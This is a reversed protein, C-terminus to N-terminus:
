AAIRELENLVDAYVAALSTAMAEVTYTSRVLNAARRARAEDSRMAFARRLAARVSGISSTDALSGTLGETVFTSPGGSIPAVVAIGTAMAELLAVGFEEKQSTCAYIGDPPILDTLGERAIRMLTAVEHNPRHGLLLFGERAHPMREFVEDLGALVAQEEATPRELNGGVIVLNLARHLNDDGAWAELLLPMGKVRHLRGVSVVLPLGRRHWPLAAIAELMDGAVTPLAAGHRAEGLERAARDVAAMSIGEPVTRVRQPELEAFPKGFLNGLTARADPRPLVVVTEAQQLLTEVLQARQLYHNRLEEQPFTERTLAGSCEAAAILAHPDPAATFVVPIGLRRCVRAAAFAGADAFRLHAVDIGGLEAVTAELARELELRHEWLDPAAVYGAPGFPMREISVGDAQIETLSAHRWGTEPEALARAITTVRGVVPETKLARGLHVLLTSIGGDDGAGAFSLDADLRGQVFIQAVHLGAESTAPRTRGRVVAVLLRDFPEESGIVSTALRAAAEGAVATRLALLARACAFRVEANGHRAARRLDDLIAPDPAAAFARVAAARVIDSEESSRLLGALLRRGDRHHLLGATEALRARATADTTHDLEAAIATAVTPAADVWREIALQGVVAAHGGEAVAHVVPAIGAITAPRDGLAWVAQERLLLDEGSALRHLTEDFVEGALRSLPRIALARGLADGSRFVSWVGTAETSGPSRRLLASQARLAELSSGNGLAQLEATSSSNLCFMSLLLLSCPAGPIGSAGLGM